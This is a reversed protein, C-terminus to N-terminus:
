GNLGRWRVVLTCTHSRALTEATLRASTSSPSDLNWSSRLVFPARGPEVAFIQAVLCRRGPTLFSLVPESSYKCSVLSRLTRLSHSGALPRTEKGAHGVAWAFREANIGRSLEPHCFLSGADYVVVKMGTPPDFVGAFSRFV